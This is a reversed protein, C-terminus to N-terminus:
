KEEPAPSGFLDDLALNLELVNVRPSGLIGLQPKEIQQKVIELLKAKEGPKLGRAKVVHDVQALAAEPSLHPDLGSGSAFLLDAPIPSALSQSLRSRRETVARKLAESTPALNSASSPLAGYESASPRSWFYAPSQFSQGILRSGRVQGQIRILSGQTEDKFFGRGIATVLLPYAVGTLLSLMIFIIVCSRLNKM